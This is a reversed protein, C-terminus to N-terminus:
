RPAQDFRRIAGIRATALRSRLMLVPSPDACSTGASLGDSYRSSEAFMSSIIVSQGSTTAVDGIPSGFPGTEDSPEERRRDRLTRLVPVAFHEIVDAVGADGHQDEVPESWQDVPHGVTGCTVQEPRHHVLDVRQGHIEPQLATFTM